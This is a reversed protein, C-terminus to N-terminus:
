WLDRCAGDGFHWSPQPVPSIGFLALQEITFVVTAKPNSLTASEVIGGTTDSYSAKGRHEGPTLADIVMDISVQKAIVLKEDGFSLGDLEVHRRILIAAMELLATARTREAESLPRWQGAVEDTDAYAM